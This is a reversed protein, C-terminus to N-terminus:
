RFSPFLIDNTFYTYLEPSRALMVHELRIINIDKERHPPDTDIIDYFDYFPRLM